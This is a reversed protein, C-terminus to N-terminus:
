LRLFIYDQARFDQGDLMSGTVTLVYVEKDLLPQRFTDLLQSTSVKFTLDPYGDPQGLTATDQLAIQNALLVPSTYDTLVSFVNIPVVSGEVRLSDTNIQSVNFDASGPLTFKINNSNINLWNNVLGPRVDLATLRLPHVTECGGSLEGIRGIIRLFSSGYPEFGPLALNRAQFLNWAEVNEPLSEDPSIINLTNDATFNMWYAQQDTQRSPFPNLGGITGIASRYQLSIGSTGQANASGDYVVIDDVPVEISGESIHSLTILADELYVAKNNSTPIVGNERRTTFSLEFSVTDGNLITGVNGTTIDASAQYECRLEELDSAQSQISACAICLAIAPLYISKM